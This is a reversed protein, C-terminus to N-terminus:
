EEGARVRVNTAAGSGENATADATKRRQAPRGSVRWVKRAHGRVISMESRLADIEEGAAAAPRSRRGNM